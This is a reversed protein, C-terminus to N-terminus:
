EAIKHMTFLRYLIGHVTILHKLIEAHLLITQLNTYGMKKPISVSCKISVLITRSFDIYFHRPAYYFVTKKTLCDVM